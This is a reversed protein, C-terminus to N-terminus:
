ATELDHSESESDDIALTGSNMEDRPFLDYDYAEVMNAISKLSDEAM